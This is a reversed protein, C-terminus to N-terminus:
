SLTGIHWVFTSVVIVDHTFVKKYMDEGTKLHSEM